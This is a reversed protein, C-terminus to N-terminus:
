KTENLWHEDVLCGPLIKNLCTVDKHGQNGCSCYIVTDMCTKHYKQNFSPLEHDGDKASIVYSTQWDGHSDSVNCVTSQEDCSAKFTDVADHVLPHIEIQQRQQPVLDLTAIM